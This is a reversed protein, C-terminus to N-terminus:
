LAERLKGSVELASLFAMCTGAVHLVHTGEHGIRLEFVEVRCRQTNFCPFNGHLVVHFYINYSITGGRGYSNRGTIRQEM